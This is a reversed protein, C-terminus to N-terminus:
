RRTDTTGPKQMSALHAKLEGYAVAPMAKALSEVFLQARFGHGAEMLVDVIAKYGFKPNAKAFKDLWDWDEKQVTARLELWAYRRDDVKLDNKIKLARNAQGLLLCKFITDVVSLDVFPQQLERELTSQLLLLKGQDELAKVEFACDKEESYLKSSAKLKILRVQVDKDLHSEQFLLHASAARRDDQDYFDRLLQTDQERCYAELLSCALPKDSVIRFFDAPPLKRKMHLLVLYVLDSDCSEVAKVLALEDEQMSLLLPVQDAPSPEYNLLKTALRVRGAAYAARAVESFSIGKCSGLKEVVQRCVTEEDESSHKVKVSAWDIMVRDIPMKLYECIRRALLHERRNILRDVLGEPSCAVYQAFTLPIGIQADRVANLVRITKCVDVFRDASFSELFAKGFSAARLLAKQLFPDFENCSADMCAIVAEMLQPRISRVNEDAKPSEKEFHERADFLIASPATSGIKFIGETVVPVCELLECRTGSIIRASDIETVMHVVGDYQYKIWDGTPGVMLITDEWHLLVSDSGCWVMQHPPTSSNTRFEALSNQFDSSVVWLRGDSTFLALFKGNPSLAMRTFPGQQLLQDQANKADVVIITNAVALLVEVHKSLSMSPPIIAWSHPAQSIGPDALVKPRPEDFDAVVILKFNATLVVVGNDWFHADLVGFEKADEGLSIQVFEGHIDYLRISGHEMVCVLREKGTWGMAVLRGKDWQFQNLLKGSSTYIQLTPRVTVAQVAVIKRDNRITAIPGGFPAAAVSLKALDVKSWMMRYVEHKRYFKKDLPKWDGCPSTYSLAATAM